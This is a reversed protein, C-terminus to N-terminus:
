CSMDLNEYMFVDAGLKLLWTSPLFMNTPPEWVALFADSGCYIPFSLCSPFPIVSLVATSDLAFTVMYLLGFSLLPGM